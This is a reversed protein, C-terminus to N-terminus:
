NFVYGVSLKVRVKDSSRALLSGTGRERWQGHSQSEKNVNIM